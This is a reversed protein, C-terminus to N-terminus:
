LLVELLEFDDSENGYDDVLYWWDDGYLEIRATEWPAADGDVINRVRITDGCHLERVQQGKADIISWREARSDYLLLGTEM